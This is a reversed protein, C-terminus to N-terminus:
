QGSEKEVEPELCQPFDWDEDRQLDGEEATAAKEDRKFLELGYPELQEDTLRGPSKVFPDEGKMTKPFAIVDRVTTTDTLLAVLRDFGLAFGAHPPCGSRLAQFLHSFGGLRPGKMKLVERMIFEQVKPLHNRESGGGVEVGNLVLDFAASKAELPEDKLIKFDARTLPATFPHHTAALGSEGDYDPDDAEVPKFMPFETVWVFQLSGPDGLRPRDMYGEDLLAKWLMSRLEGIPTSACFNQGVPTPRAQVVVLDGDKIDAWGPVPALVSEYEHGMSAFGSLPKSSDYIIVQPKGHPNEALAPPLSDMFPVLFKRAQEPSCDKLPFIFTEILPESLKTVMGVFSRIPTLDEIAHIKNPIRLDPKDSGYAAISEEWTMTTFQHAHTTAPAATAGTTTAALTAQAAETADVATTAETADTATTAETADTATTAETADTAATAEAAASGTTIKAVVPIRAGRIDQYSVSPHLASLAKVLMNTVDSMVNSGVAYAWEMDLQTFEPQRDTRLDEDRYCRAWQMYRSIGSAILAQKYQQPSQSLAYARGRRRTPVLFERAGEPTSKFLTPTEVDVFGKELLDQSLVGKLWSRFRLRAQLDQHFRIQLHRKTPPFHVEPTVIQKKPISNLPWIDRMRMTFKRGSPHNECDPSPPFSGMPRVCVPVHAPIARFKEHTNGNPMCTSCLQYVVGSPLTLDAFILDRSVTRKKGLYGVLVTGDRQGRRYDNVRYRNWDLLAHRINEPLRQDDVITKWTLNRLSLTRSFM